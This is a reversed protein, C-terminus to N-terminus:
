MRNKKMENYRRLMEEYERKAENLEDEAAREAGGATRAPAPAKRPKEAAPAPGPKKKKPKPAEEAAAPAPKKKKKPKETRVPLEDTEEEDPEVRKKAAPKKSSKKKKKKKPQDEIGLEIGEERARKYIFWALALAILLVILAIAMLIGTFMTQGDPHAFHTYGVAVGFVNAALAVFTLVKTWKVAKVRCKLGKVATVLAFPAILFAAFALIGRMGIEQNLSNKYDDMYECFTDCVKLCKDYDLRPSGGPLSLLQGEENYKYIDFKKGLRSTMSEVAINGKRDTIEAQKMLEAVAEEVQGVADEFEEVTAKGEAIAGEAYDLQGSMSYLEAGAKNLEREQEDILGKADDLQKQADNMQVEADQLQKEAEEYAALAAKAEAIQQDRYAAFAVIDSPLSIGYNAALPIITAKYWANMINFRPSYDLIGTKIEVYEDLFPDLREWRELQAKGAEYGSRSEEMQAKAEEYQAKATDLQQQADAHQSRADSIVQRGKALQSEGYAIQQRGALVQDDGDYIMEFGEIYQDESERLMNLGDRLEGIPEIAEDLSTVAQSLAAVEIFGWVGGGLSFLSALLLFISIAVTSTSKKM